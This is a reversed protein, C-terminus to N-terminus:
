GMWGFNTYIDPFHYGNPPCIKTSATIPEVCKEKVIMHEELSDFYIFTIYLSWVLLILIGAIISSKIYNSMM